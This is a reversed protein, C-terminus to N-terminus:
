CFIITTFMRNELYYTPFLSTSILSTDGKMMLFSAFVATTNHWRSVMALLHQVFQDLLRFKWAACVCWKLHLREAFLNFYCWGHLVEVLIFCLLCCFPVQGDFPWQSQWPLVQLYIVQWLLCCPTQLEKQLAWVWVCTERSWLFISLM